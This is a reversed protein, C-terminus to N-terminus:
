QDEEVGVRQLLEGLADITLARLHERESVDATLRKAIWDGHTGDPRLDRWIEWQDAYKAALEEARTPSPGYLNGARSDSSM